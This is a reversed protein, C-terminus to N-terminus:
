LSATRFIPCATGADQQSLLYVLCVMVLTARDPALDCVGLRM